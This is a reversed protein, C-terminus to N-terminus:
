TESRTAVYERLALTTIRTLDVRGLLEDPSGEVIAENADLDKTTAQDEERIKLTSSDVGEVVFVHVDVDAGDQGKTKQYTNLPEVHLTSVELALEEILERRLAAEPEENTEVRGGFMSVRGANVADYRYASGKRVLLIKGNEGVLLAHAGAERKTAM